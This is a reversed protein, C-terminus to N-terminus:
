FKLYTQTPKPFHYCEPKLHGAEKWGIVAVVKTHPHSISFLGGDRGCGSLNTKVGTKREATGKRPKGPM